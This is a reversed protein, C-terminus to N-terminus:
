GERKSSDREHLLYLLGLVLALAGQTSTFAIAAGVINLLPLLLYTLVLILTSSVASIVILPGIRREVKLKTMYLGSIAVFVSSISLIWLPLTGHTAYNPGILSLAFNGLLVVGAIGPVLLVLGFILSRGADRHFDGDVQSGEAFLSMQTAGPVIFLVSSIAFSMYYYAAYAAAQEKSTFALLTNVILLPMLSNPLMGFIGAVQNAVSYSAMDKLQKDTLEPRPRYHGNVLPVFVILAVASSIVLAVAASSVIGLTTLVGLVALAVVLPIKVSNSIVNRMMTLFARRRAIFISDLLPAVTTGLVLLIFAFVYLWSGRLDSIAQGWLDLGIIFLLSIELGIWLTWTFSANVLRNPDEAEPLYRILGVGFGLTALTGLFAATNLVSLSIGVTAEPYFRGAVFWFFFGLLSVLVTNLMLWFANGYLPQKLKRFVYPVLIWPRILHRLEASEDVVGTAIRDSQDGM